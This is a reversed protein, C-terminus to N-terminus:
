ARRRLAAWVTLAADIPLGRGERRRLVIMEGFCSEPAQAEVRARGYRMQPGLSPRQGLRYLTELEDLRGEGFVRLVEQGKSDPVWSPAKSPGSNWVATRRATIIM